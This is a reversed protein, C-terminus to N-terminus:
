GGGREHTVGPGPEGDLNAVSVGGEAEQDDVMPSRNPDPSWHLIPHRMTTASAGDPDSATGVSRARPRDMVLGPRLHDRQGRTTPASHATSSGSKGTV